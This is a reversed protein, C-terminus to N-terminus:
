PLVATLTITFYDADGLERLLSLTGGPVSEKCLLGAAGPLLGVDQGVNQPGYPIPYPGPRNIKSKALNKSIKNRNEIM